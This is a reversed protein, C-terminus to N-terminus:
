EGTQDMVKVGDPVEFKFRSADIDVNSKIETWTMVTVEKGKGDIGVMRVPFGDSQRFNYRMTSPAGPAAPPKKPTATVTWTKEGDVEADDGLTLDYDAKLNELVGSGVQVQKPDAKTKIVNKQGMMENLVWAYKGDLVNLTKGSMKMEGMEMSTEMEMRTYTKDDRVVYEYTGTAEQKFKMQEQEMNMTMKIKSTCSHIKKQLDAIKKEVEELTDGRVHTATFSVAVLAVMLRALM